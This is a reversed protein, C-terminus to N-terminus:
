QEDKLESEMRRVRIKESVVHFGLLGLPLVPLVRDGIRDVIDLVKDEGSVRPSGDSNVHDPWTMYAERKRAAWAEADGRYLLIDNELEDYAQLMGLSALPGALNALLKDFWSMEVDIVEDKFEGEIYHWLTHYKSVTPNQTKWAEVQAKRIYGTFKLTMYGLGVLGFSWASRWFVKEYDYSVSERELVKQKRELAAIVSGSLAM